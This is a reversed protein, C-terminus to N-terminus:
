VQVAVAQTLEPLLIAPGLLAELEVVTTVVPTSGVSVVIVARQGPLSIAIPPPPSSESAEAVKAFEKGLLLAPAAIVVPTRPVAQVTVKERLVPNTLAKAM